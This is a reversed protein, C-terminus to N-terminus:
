IAGGGSLVKTRQEHALTGFFGVVEEITGVKVLFRHIGPGELTLSIFILDVETSLEVVEHPKSLPQFRPSCLHIVSTPYTPSM